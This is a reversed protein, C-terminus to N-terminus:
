IHIESFVNNLYTRLGQFFDHFNIFTAERILSYGQRFFTLILLRPVVNILSTLTIAFCNNKVLAPLIKVKM